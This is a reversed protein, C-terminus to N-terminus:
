SDDMSSMRGVSRRLKISILVLISSFPNLLRSPSVYEYDGLIM